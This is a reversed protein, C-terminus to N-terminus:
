FINFLLLGNPFYFFFKQDYKLWQVYRMHPQRFLHFGAAAAAAAVNSSCVLQGLGVDFVLVLLATTLKSKFMMCFCLIVIWSNFEELDKRM